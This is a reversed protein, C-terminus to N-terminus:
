GERVFVRMAEGLLVDVSPRDAPDVSRFTWMVHREGDILFDGGLQLADEGEPVRRVKGGRAVLKLYKWILRPRFIKGWSTRELGFARYSDRTPDALLPFPLANEKLYRALTEPTSMSIALINVGIARFEEARKVM